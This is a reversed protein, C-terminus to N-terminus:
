AESTESSHGGVLLVATLVAMLPWLPACYRSLGLEVIATVALTGHFAAGAVAALPVAQALKPHLRRRLPLAVLALAGIVAATTFLFRALLMLFAPNRDESKFPPPVEFAPAAHFLQAARLADRADAPPMPAAPVVAPPHGVLYERLGSARASSGYTLMRLDAALVSAAYCSPNARVREGAIRAMIPDTQWGATMGHAQALLPIIWGFRLQGSYTRELSSRFEAPADDVYRRAPAASGEVFQSDPDTITGPQECFLTHQLVGRAFPSTTEFSGHALYQGVPTAGWGVAFGAVILALTRGRPLQPRSIFVAVGTAVFLAVFAPRVMTAVAALAVLVAIRSMKPARLFQLLQACWFAVLTAALAETLLVMSLKWLEIGTILVIQFAVTLLPRRTYEYFSRGLTMLSAALLIIQAPVVLGPNGALLRVLGIFAPYGVTRSPDFVIYSASDSRLPDMGRTGLLTTIMAIVTILGIASLVRWDPYAAPKEAQVVAGSAGAETVEM